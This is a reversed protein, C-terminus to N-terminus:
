IVGLMRMMFIGSSITLASGLTSYLIIDGALQANGGMAEAMIFSVVATPSAFLIFVIALDEGIFELQYATLTFLLPSVILKMFAASLAVRSSNKMNRFNLSGGIGLLALPLTITALYNGTTQLVEPITIQLGAFPAAAFLALILPNKVIELLVQKHNLQKERRVPVTLAIISLVNYLPIIFALLVAAKAMEGEGFMNAIIALGFIAFNSRFSGQVFVGRDRGEPIFIISLLWNLAFLFLVGGYVYLMQILNVSRTLDMQAVKMFILVPLTVSFVFKSSTAVFNENIIGKRKLIIGLIVILFIPAITNVTFQINQLFDSM